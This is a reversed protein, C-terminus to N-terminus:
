DRHLSPHNKQALEKYRRLFILVRYLFLLAYKRKVEQPSADRAIELIAYYDM